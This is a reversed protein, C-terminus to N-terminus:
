SEWLHITHGLDVGGKQARAEEWVERFHPRVFEDVDGVADVVAPPHELDTMPGGEEHSGGGWEEGM